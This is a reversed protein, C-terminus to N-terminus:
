KVDEREIRPEPFAPVECGGDEDVRNLVANVMREEAVQHAHDPSQAAVTVSWTVVYVGRM